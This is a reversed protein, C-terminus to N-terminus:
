KRRARRVGGPRSGGSPRRSPRLRRELRRHWPRGRRGGALRLTEQPFPIRREPSGIATRGSLRKRGGISRFRPVREGPWAVSFLVTADADLDIAPFPNAAPRATGGEVYFIHDAHSYVVRFSEFRNSISLRTPRNRPSARRADVGRASRPEGCPRQASPPDAVHRRGQLPRVLGAKCRICGQLPILPSSPSDSPPGLATGRARLDRRISRNQM